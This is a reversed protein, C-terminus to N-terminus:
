EKDKIIYNPRKSVKINLSYLYEGLIGIGLLVSSFGFLLIISITPFGSQYESNNVKNYLIYLGYSNALVFFGISMWSFLRIPLASFTIFINISHEILKKFSYSTQGRHGKYSKLTISGVNTTAWSMYGDLFTYSSKMGIVEEALSRTLVRFSSYSPHLDPIARSLAIKLINSSFRRGKKHESRSYDGYVLEFKGKKLLDILILIDSPSHELDEDITAIFRGKSKRFGCLIANHQGFNRTLEILSVERYMLELAKSVLLSAESGYDWVLIIEFVLEKSELADKVQRCLLELSSDGQFVPVIVSIDISSGTM